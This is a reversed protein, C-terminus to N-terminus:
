HSGEEWSNGCDHCKWGLRHLPIPPVIGAMWSGLISAYAVRRILERFSVEFSQCEPCRPQKYEGMEGIVFTEPRDLDLLEVADANEARVWLKVGGLFNSWLWDMRIINEDALFCEISASDLISKALLADPLDRFRRLTVPGLPEQESLPATAVPDTMATESGRRNLEFQLASRAADSLSSADAALKELEGDAMGGYLEALRRREKESDLTAMTRAIYALSPEFGVLVRALL